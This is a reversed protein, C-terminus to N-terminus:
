IRFTVQPKWLESSYRCVELLSNRHYAFLRRLVDGGVHAEAVGSRQSTFDVSKLCDLLRWCLWELRLVSKLFKGIANELSPNERLVYNDDFICQHPINDLVGLVLVNNSTTSQSNKSKSKLNSFLPFESTEQTDAESSHSSTDDSDSGFLENKMDKTENSVDKSQVTSDNVNNKISSILEKTKGIDLLVNNISEQIIPVVHHNSCAAKVLGSLSKGIYYDGFHAITKTYVSQNSFQVLLEKTSPFCCTLYTSIIISVLESEEAFFLNMFSHSSSGSRTRYNAHINEILTCIHFLKEMHFQILIDTNSEVDSANNSSNRRVTHLKKLIKCCTILKNRICLVFSLRLSEIDRFVHALERGLEIFVDNGIRNMCENSLIIPPKLTLVADITRTVLANAIVLHKGEETICMIQLFSMISEYLNTSGNVHTIYNLPSKDDDSLLLLNKFAIAIGDRIIHSLYQPEIDIGAVLLETIDALVEVYSKNCVPNRFIFTCLQTFFPQYLIQVGTETTAITRRRSEFLTTTLLCIISKLLYHLSNQTHIIDENINSSVLQIISSIMDIGGCERLIADRSPHQSLSDDLSEICKIVCWLKFDYEQKTKVDNDKNYYNKVIFSLGEVSNNIQNVISTYGSAEGVIKNYDKMSTCLVFLEMSMQIYDTWIGATFLDKKFLLLNLMSIDNSNCINLIDIMETTNINSNNNDTVSSHIVFENTNNEILQHNTTLFTTMTACSSLLISYWSLDTSSNTNTTNDVKIIGLGNIIDSQELWIKRRRVSVELIATLCYLSISSLLYTNVKSVLQLESVGYLLSTDSFLVLDNITFSGRAVYPTIREV